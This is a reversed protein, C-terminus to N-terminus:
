YKTIYGIYNIVYNNLALFDKITTQIGFTILLFCMHIKLSFYQAM